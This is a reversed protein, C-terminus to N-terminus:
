ILESDDSPTPLADVTESVGCCQLVELREPTPLIALDDPMPDGKVLRFPKGRATETNRLFGLDLAVRVRRSATAPDIELARAVERVSVSATEGAIRITQEVTVRIEAPVTTQVGEAIVDAILARVAAYDALTAIVRGDFDQERTAQHLLAHSRILALVTGFDRRLRTAVPAVENALVDAYPITVRTDGMELWAQLAHWASLDPITPNEEALARLISRTQDRSDSVTLSLMRTENEPHLKVATTTVILGTPGEREILRPVMGESTKVVTEYRIRGESLLSRMLYTALDGGMGAAEYIVLMRHQIPENSYALIRESMASIAHYASGPFFSLVRDVLFSKGASSPGKVVVSVPRELLRSVVALFVLQATREEGVLGLRQLKERLEALLDPRQALDACQAWAEERRQEDALRRYRAWPIASDLAEQWREPFRNPDALHLANADKFPELRVLWVRDRLASSELWSLV